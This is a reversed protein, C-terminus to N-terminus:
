RWGELVTPLEALRAIVADPAVLARAPDEQRFQHTLVARMGLAKPGLVDERLRDGVFVAAEAPVNLRELVTQYIRPHPKRLGLECSFISEDVLQLLESERAHRRVVSPLSCYNSVLGLKLGRARLGAVVEQAEPARERLAYGVEEEALIIEELLMDDVNIGLAALSSRFLLGADLEEIREEEYSRNLIQWFRESVGELLIHAAPVSLAGNLIPKGAEILKERIQEYATLLADQVPGFHALTDGYDFLIAQVPPQPSTDSM